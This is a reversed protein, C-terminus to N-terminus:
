ASNVDQGLSEMKRWAMEEPIVSVEEKLRQKL